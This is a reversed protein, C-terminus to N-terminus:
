SPVTRSKPFAVGSDLLRLGIIHNEDSTISYIKPTSHYGFTWRQWDSWQGKYCFATSYHDTYYGFAGKITSCSTLNLLTLVLSLYRLIRKTDRQFRKIILAM